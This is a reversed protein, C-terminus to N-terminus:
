SSLEEGYIFNDRNKVTEELKFAFAGNSDTVTHFRILNQM